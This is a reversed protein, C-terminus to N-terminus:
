TGIQGKHAKFLVKSAEINAESSKSAERTWVLHGTPQVALVSM